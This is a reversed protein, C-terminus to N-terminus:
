AGNALGFQPLGRIRSRNTVLHAKIQAELERTDWLLPRKFHTQAEPCHEFHLLSGWRPGFYADAPPASCFTWYKALAEKRCCIGVKLSAETDQNSLIRLKSFLLSCIQGIRWMSGWNSTAVGVSCGHLFRFTTSYREMVYHIRTRYVFQRDNAFAPLRQCPTDKRCHDYRTRWIM